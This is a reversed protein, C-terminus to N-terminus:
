DEYEDMDDSDQYSGVYSGPGAASALARPRKAGKGAVGTASLAETGVYAACVDLIRVSNKNWKNVFATRTWNRWERAYNEVDVISVNDFWEQLAHYDKFKIHCKKEVEYDNLVTVAESDNIKLLCFPLGNPQFYPFEDHRSLTNRSLNSAHSAYIGIKVPDDFGKAVLKNYTEENLPKTMNQNTGLESRCIKIRKINEFGAPREDISLCSVIGANIETAVVGQEAVLRQLERQICVRFAM